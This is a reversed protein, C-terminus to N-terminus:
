IVKSALHVLAWSFRDPPRTHRADTDLQSNLRFGSVQFGSLRFRLWDRVEEVLVSLSVGLAKSKSCCFSAYPASSSHWTSKRAMLSSEYVPLLREPLWQVDKVARRHHDAIRRLPSGRSGRARGRRSFDRNYGVIDAPNFVANTKQNRIALDLTMQEKRDAPALCVALCTRVLIVAAGESTSSTGLVNASRM